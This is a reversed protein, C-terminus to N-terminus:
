EERLAVMPDIHAARRAPLLCALLAFAIVMVPVLAFTLPDRASVGFLQSQLYGGLALAGASGIAVGILAISAVQRLVLLLINRARAGMALRVGFEQTRRTVGYSVVGYIGILALLVAAGAFLGLLTMVLRRETLSEDIIQQYTRIDSVPQDPNVSLVARRIAETLTTQPLPSKMVLTMSHPASQAVPFYMQPRPPEEDLGNHRVTEVVGVVTVGPDEEGDQQHSGGVRVREGIAEAGPWHIAAFAEDIVMTAPADPRDRADLLRGRKLRMGLTSFYSPSVQAYEAFPRDNPPPEPRGAVTFSTQNGGVFPLNNTLGADSIGPLSKIEPVLAEWFQLRLREDAFREAPLRVEATVVGDPEFGPDVGLVTVFSRLLLSAGVLLMIALAIEAVVLGNQTRRKDRGEGGRAGAHLRGALSGHAGQLAPLLGFVVGTLVALGATFALVGGDIGVEDVRPLGGGFLTRVGEICLQAVLVGLGGGLLALLVSETLVQRIVRARGAGVARRVAFERERVVTRALLLNAINVCAILLVLLVAGSLLYLAPRVDRVAWEGLLQYEVGNGKNTDPYQEGLARSITDIEAQAEQLTVGPALRAFGYIGPHNGRSQWSPYDSFRGIPVFVDSRTPHRLSPPMVGVIEYADDNLTLTRGIVAPDGAFRRQWYGHGLVAVAAGGPRDEEATFGRGLLPAIGLVGFLNDSVMTTRVQEPEGSGTLNFLDRRYVGLNEVAQSQARWDLYNPYSVSMAGFTPHTEWFIMIEEAESYPLPRLLSTNVISFIATTAGIGLALTAVVVATFGPSKLLMRAAYRVDSM